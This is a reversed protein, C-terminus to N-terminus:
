PALQIRDALLTGASGVKGSAQVQRGKALEEWTAPQGDATLLQGEPTLTLTVFGAVPQQLVIIRAESHSELVTATLTTAAAVAPYLQKWFPCHETREAIRTCPGDQVYLDQLEVQFAGNSRLVGHALADQELYPSFEASGIPDGNESVLLALTLELPGWLWVAEGPPYNSLLQPDFEDRAVAFLTQDFWTQWAADTQIALYQALVEGSALPQGAVRVRQGERPELAQGHYTYDIPLGRFHVRFPEGYITYRQGADTLLTFRVGYIRAEDWDEVKGVLGQRYPLLEEPPLAAQERDPPASRVILGAGQMWDTPIAVDMAPHGPFAFSELLHLYIAATAQHLPLATSIFSIRFAYGDAAFIVSAMDGVGEKAPHYHFLAPQGLFTANYTIPETAEAALLAEPRTNVWTLLDFDHQATVDWVDVEVRADGEPSKFRVREQIAMPRTHQVWEPYASWSQPFALRYGTVSSQYWTWGPTLAPLPEVTAPPVTAPSTESPTPSAPATTPSPAPSLAVTPTGGGQDACGTLAGLLAVILLVGGARLLATAKAVPRHKGLPTGINEM